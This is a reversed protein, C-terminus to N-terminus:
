NNDNRESSQLARLQTTSELSKENSRSNDDKGKKESNNVEPRFQEENILSLNLQNMYTEKKEKVISSDADIAVEPSSISKLSQENKM